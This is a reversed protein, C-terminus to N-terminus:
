VSLVTRLLCGSLFILNPQKQKTKGTQELTSILFLTFLVFLVETIFLDLIYINIFSSACLIGQGYEKSFRFHM